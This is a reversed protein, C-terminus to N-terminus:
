AGVVTVDRGRAAAALAADFTALPSGTEAALGLVYCDPLAVRTAARLSAIRLPEDADPASVRIGLGDVLRARVQDALGARAPVVLVEALTVPHIVLEDAGVVLSAASEAHPDRPSRLAIM